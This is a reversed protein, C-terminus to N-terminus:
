IGVIRLIYNDWAHMQVIRSLLPETKKRIRELEDLLEKGQPKSGLLEKLGKKEMKVVM